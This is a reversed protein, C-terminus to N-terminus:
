KYGLMAAQRRSLLAWIGVVTGAAQLPLQLYSTLIFLLHWPEPGVNTVNDMGPLLFHHILGYILSSLMSLLLLLMGWRSLHTNYIIFLAVLPLIMIVIGIFLDDFITMPLIHLSIHAASHALLVLANLVVIWTASMLLTRKM